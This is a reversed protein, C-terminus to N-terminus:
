SCAGCRVVTRSHRCTGRKSRRRLFPSRAKPSAGTRPPTTQIAPGDNKRTMQPLHRAVDCQFSYQFCWTINSCELIAPCTGSRAEVLVLICVTDSDRTSVGWTKAETLACWGGEMLWSLVLLRLQKIKIYDQNRGSAREVAGNGQAQCNLSYVPHVLPSASVSTREWM